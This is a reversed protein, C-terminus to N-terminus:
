TNKEKLKAEISRYIDIADVLRYGLLTNEIEEDTLGVWTRQPPTTYLPICCANTQKKALTASYRSQEFSNLNKFTSHHAWAVPDPEYDLGLERANEAKRELADDKTM